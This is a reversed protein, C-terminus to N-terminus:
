DTDKHRAYPKMANLGAPLGSRLYMCFGSQLAQTMTEVRDIGFEHFMKSAASTADRLHWNVEIWSYLTVDYALDNVQVSCEQDGRSTNLAAKFWNPTMANLETFAQEFTRPVLIGSGIKTPGLAMQKTGDIPMESEEGVYVESAFSAATTSIEVETSPETERDVGTTTGLLAFVLLM